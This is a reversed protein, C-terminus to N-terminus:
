KFSPLASPPLGISIGATTSGSTESAGVVSLNDIVAGDELTDPLLLQASLTHQSGADLEDWSATILTNGNDLAEKVVGGGSSAVATIFTLEELLEDRLVVNTVKTSGVNRVVFELTFPVDQWVYRPNLNMELELNPVSEAAQVSSGSAAGGANSAGDIVPLLTEAETADFNPTLFDPNVWAPQESGLACCVLWWADNRGLVELEDDQFVTGVVVSELSPQERINVVLVAVNATLGTSEIAADAGDGGSATDGDVPGDAPGDSAADDAAEDAPADDNEPEDGEASSGADSEDGTEETVDGDTEFDASDSDADQDDTNDFFGGGDELPEEDEEDVEDEEHDDAEPTPTPTPAPTVTPVPTSTPTATPIPVTQNVPSYTSAAWASPSSFLMMAILVAVSTILWQRRFFSFIQSLLIRGRRLFNEIRM